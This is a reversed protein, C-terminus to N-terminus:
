NCRNGKAQVHGYSPENSMMRVVDCSPAIASSMDPTAQPASPMVSLADATLAALRYRLARQLASVGHLNLGSCSPLCHRTQTWVVFLYSAFWAGRGYGPPVRM